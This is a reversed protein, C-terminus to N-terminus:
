HCDRQKNKYRRNKLLGYVSGLGVSNLFERVYVKQLKLFYWFLACSLSSRHLICAALVEKLARKENLNSNGDDRFYAGSNRIRMGVIGRLFARLHFEFDPSVMFGLNFNGAKAFVDFKYVITPYNIRPMTYRILHFYNDSAPIRHRRSESVVTLDSYVFDISPNRDLERLANEIFDSDIWDDANLFFVYQGAALTLAKNLADSPGLDSESVFKTYGGKEQIISVTEDTSLGDVIIYEINSYTQNVVSEITQLITREANKCITVISVLSNM